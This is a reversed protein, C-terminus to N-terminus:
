QPRCLFQAGTAVLAGPDHASGTSWSGPGSDRLSEDLFGAVYKRIAAIARDPTSAGSKVVGQLLWVADSLAIHEAGPLNVAIRPGHLADWLRCDDENWRERGVVLNLVPQEIAKPFHPPVLGDLLVAAKFRPESELARLTTLGGLSHGVLAIRTLDLRGAFDGGPAANLRQLTNLVFRLDDLRV